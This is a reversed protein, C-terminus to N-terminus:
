EPFLVEQTKSNKQVLFADPSPSYLSSLQIKLLNMSFVIM